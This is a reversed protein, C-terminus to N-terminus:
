VWLFALTWTDSRHLHHCPDIFIHRTWLRLLLPTHGLVGGFVWGVGLYKAKQNRHTTRSEIGM